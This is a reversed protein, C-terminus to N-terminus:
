RSIPKPTICLAYKRHFAVGRPITKELCGDLGVSTNRLESLVERRAELTDHELENRTPMVESILAADLECGKRSSCFILAGYGSRVTESALAAVANALPNKLAPHQSPAITRCPKPSSVASVSGDPKTSTALFASSSSAPYIGNDFVLYEEIPIPKYKSEYYNANLWKALM